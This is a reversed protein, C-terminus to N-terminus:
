RDFGAAMLEILLRVLLVVVMATLAALFLLTLAFAGAGRWLRRIAIAAARSGTPHRRQEIASDDTVAFADPDLATTPTSM